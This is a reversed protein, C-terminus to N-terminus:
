GIMLYILYSGVAEPFIFVYSSKFWSKNTAAGDIIAIKNVTEVHNLDVHIKEKITSNRLMKYKADVPLTLM